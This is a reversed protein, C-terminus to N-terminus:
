RSAARDWRAAPTSAARGAPTRRHRRRAVASREAAVPVPPSRGRAPRRVSRRAPIRSSARRGAGAAPPPARPCRARRPSRAVAPRPAPGADALHDRGPGPDDFGGVGGAALDFVLQVVAGLTAEFGDVGRQCPEFRLRERLGPLWEDVFEVRDAGLQGDRQVFQAAQGTPEVRHQQGVGPGIGAMWASRSRDGIGARSVPRPPCEAAPRSRAPPRSGPARPRRCRRWACRHPAPSPRSVTRAAVFEDDLDVVVTAATASGSPGPSCPMASRM